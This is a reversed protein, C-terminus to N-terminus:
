SAPHMQLLPKVESEIVNTYEFGIIKQRLIGARDYILTTPLGEIEGFLSVIDPTATALPYRVGMKRAFDLPPETDMMMTAKFGVVALGQSEYRQLLKQYGPMEAKCPQCWTAWFDVIVVKGRLAKSSFPHGALDTASFSPLRSGIQGANAQPKTQNSSAPYRSCGALGLCCLLVLLSVTRDLM